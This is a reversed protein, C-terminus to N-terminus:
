WSKRYLIKDGPVWNNLLNQFLPLFVNIVSNFYCYDYTTSGFFFRAMTPLNKDCLDKLENTAKVYENYMKNEWDNPLLKKINTMRKVLNKIDNKNLIAEGNKLIKGYTKDYILREPHRQQVFSVMWNEKRMYLDQLERYNILGQRKEAECNLNDMEFSDKFSIFDPKPASSFDNPYMKNSIIYDGYWRKYLIDYQKYETYYKKEVMRRKKDHADRIKSYSNYQNVNTLKYFYIDLGM